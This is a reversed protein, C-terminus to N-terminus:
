KHKTSLIFNVFTDITTGVGNLKLTLMVYYHCKIKIKKICMSVYHFFFECYFMVIFLYVCNSFFM